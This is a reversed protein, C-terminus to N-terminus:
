LSANSGKSSRKNTHRARGQTCGFWNQFFKEGDILGKASTRNLVGLALGLKSEKPHRKRYSRFYREMNVRSWDDNINLVACQGINSHNITLFDSIDNRSSSPKKFTRWILRMINDILRILRCNQQHGESRSFPQGIQDTDM